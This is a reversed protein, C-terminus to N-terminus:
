HEGRPRMPEQPQGWIEGGVWVRPGRSLAEVTAQWPTETIDYKTAGLIKITNSRGGPAETTHLVHM